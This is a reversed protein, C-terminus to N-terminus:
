CPPSIAMTFCPRTALEPPRLVTSPSVQPTNCVMKSNFVPPSWRDGEDEHAEASASMVVGSVTLLTVYLASKTSM